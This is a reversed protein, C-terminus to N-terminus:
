LSAKFRLCAAGVAAGLEIAGAGDDDVKSLLLLINVMNALEILETAAAEVELIDAIVAWSDLWEFTSTLM